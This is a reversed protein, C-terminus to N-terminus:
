NSINTVMENKPGLYFNRSISFGFRVGGDRWSKKTYPIFNNATIYTANQFNLSFVHGGTEIELGIGLPNYYKLDLGEPRDFGNVLTYDTILSLRKSFKFRGGIGLVLFSVQDNIDELQAETRIVYGPNLMLSLKPSFKRALIIQFFHSIRDTEDSFENNFFERRTIWSSQGFITISLPIGIEEQKLL